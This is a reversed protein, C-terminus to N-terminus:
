NRACRATPAMIRIDQHLSLHADQSDNLVERAIITYSRRGQRANVQRSFAFVVYTKYLISQVLVFIRNAGVDDLITVPILERQHQAVRMASVSVSIGVVQTSCSYQM